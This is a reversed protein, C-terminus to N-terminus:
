QGKFTAMIMTWAGTTTTATADESTMVSQTKDEILNGSESVEGTFGSGASAAPAEAYGLVLEHPFTTAASGSDMSTGTGTANSQVDFAETLALGAYELIFLDAGTPAASLQLSITDSGGAVDMALGVYHVNSSSTVPGVVFAYTNDHSDTVTPPSTSTTASPYNFCVIIADHPHVASAFSLTTVTATPKIAATQVLTIPAAADGLPKGGPGDHKAADLKHPADAPMAPADQQPTM